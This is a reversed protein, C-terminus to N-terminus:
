NEKQGNNLIYDILTKYGKESLHLGDDNLNDKFKNFIGRYGLWVAPLVQLRLACDESLNTIPMNFGKKHRIRDYVM